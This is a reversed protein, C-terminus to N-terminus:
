GIDSLADYNCHSQVQIILDDIAAFVSYSGTAVFQLNIPTNSTFLSGAYLRVQWWDRVGTPVRPNSTSSRITQSSTQLMMSLSDNLQYVFYKNCILALTVALFIKTEGNIQDGRIFVYGGTYIDSNCIFTCVCYYNNYRHKTPQHHSRAVSFHSSFKAYLINEM